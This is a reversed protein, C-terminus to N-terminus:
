IKKPLIYVICRKNKFDTEVLFEDMGKYQIKNISCCFTHLEELFQLEYYIKELKYEYDSSEFKFEIVKLAEKKLSEIYNKLTEKDM